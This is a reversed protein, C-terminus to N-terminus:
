RKSLVIVEGNDQLNIPLVDQLSHIMMDINDTPFVATLNLTALEPTALQIPRASYRNFDAIVDSLPADFYLRLGHRWAGSKDADQRTINSLGSIKSVVHDGANLELQTDTLTNKVAVLGSEVSIKARENLRNVNFRTGLVSISTHIADVMFPRKPDKAVDFFAEGRLLTVQRREPTLRLEIQSDAGLAIISGDPLHIQRTEGTTSAYSVGRHTDPSPIWLGIALLLCAAAALLGATTARRQRFIAVNSSSTINTDSHGPQVQRKLAQLECAQQWIRETERWAQQHEQGIALWREFRTRDSSKVNDDNLLVMWEHAQQEASPIDIEVSSDAETTKM